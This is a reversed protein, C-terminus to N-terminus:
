TGNIQAILARMKESSSYNRRDRRWYSYHLRYSSPTSQLRSHPGVSPSKLALYSQLRLLPVRLVKGFGIVKGVVVLTQLKGGKIYCQLQREQGTESRINKRKRSRKYGDTVM